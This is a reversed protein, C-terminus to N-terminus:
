PGARRAEEQIQEFPVPQDGLGLIQTSLIRGWIRLLRNEEALHDLREEAARWRHETEALRDRVSDLREELPKVLGVAADSIAKAANNRNLVRSGVYGLLGIILTVGSGIFIEM